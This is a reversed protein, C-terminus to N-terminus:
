KRNDEWCWHPSESWRGLGTWDNLYLFISVVEDRKGLSDEWRTPLIPIPHLSSQM